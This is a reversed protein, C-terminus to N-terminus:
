QSLCISTIICPRAMIFSLDLWSRSNFALSTVVVDCSAVPFRCLISKVSLSVVIQRAVGSTNPMIWTLTDNRRYKNDQRRVRRCQDKARRGLFGGPFAGRIHTLYLSGLGWRTVSKFKQTNTQTFRLNSDFQPPALFTEFM